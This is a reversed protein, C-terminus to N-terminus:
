FLWTTQLNRCIFYLCLLKFSVTRWPTQNWESFNSVSCLFTICNSMQVFYVFYNTVVFNTPPIGKNVVENIKEKECDQSWKYIQQTMSSLTFVMQLQISLKCVTNNENLWKVKTPKLKRTVVILILIHM